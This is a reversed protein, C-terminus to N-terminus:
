VTEATAHQSPHHCTRKHSCKLPTVSIYKLISLNISLNYKEVFTFMYLLSNTKTFCCSIREVFKTWLIVVYRSSGIKLSLPFSYKIATKYINWSSQPLIKGQVAYRWNLCNILELLKFLQSLLIHSAITSSSASLQTGRM